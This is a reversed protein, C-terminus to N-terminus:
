MCENIVYEGVRRLRMDELVASSVIVLPAYGFMESYFTPVPYTRMGEGALWDKDADKMAKDPINITIIKNPNHNNYEKIQVNNNRDQASLPTNMGGIKVLTIPTTGQLPGVRALMQDELDGWKRVRSAQDNIWAEVLKGWQLWNGPTDEFQVSHIPRNPM